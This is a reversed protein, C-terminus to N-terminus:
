RAWMLYNTVQAGSSSPTFSGPMTAQSSLTCTIYSGGSTFYSYVVSGVGEITPPTSFNLLMAIYYSTGATIAQSTITGEIYTGIGEFLSTMDGTQQLLSGAQSYIAMENVGTGSGSAGSGGTLACGLKTINTSVGATCLIAIFKQAAPGGQGAFASQIPVTQLAWGMGTASVGPWTIATPTQWAATNGSTATLVQSSSPATASSVNVTGTASTLANAQLAYSATGTTNQNLVPITVNGSLGNVSNVVQSVYPPVPASILSSIDITGTGSSAPLYATFQESAGGVAVNINYAWGNPYLGTNDTGVLEVSMSGNTGVTGIVATETLIIKGAPDTIASTPTFLVSGGQPSGAANEFYATCTVLNLAV